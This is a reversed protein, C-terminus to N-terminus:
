KILKHHLLHCSCLYEKQPTLILLLTFGQGGRRKRMTYKVVRDYPTGALINYFHASSVNLSNYLSKKRMIIRLAKGLSFIIYILPLFSSDHPFLFSFWHICFLSPDSFEIWWSSETETERQVNKGSELGSENNLYIEFKDRM